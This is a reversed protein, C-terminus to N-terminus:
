LFRGNDPKECMLRNVKRERVRDLGIVIYGSHAKQQGRQQGWSCSSQVWRCGGGAVSAVFFGKFIM